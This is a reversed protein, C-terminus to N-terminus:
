FSCMEAGHLSIAHVIPNLGFVSHSSKTLCPYTGDSLVSVQFGGNLASFWISDGSWPQREAERREPLICTKAVGETFNCYVEVADSICGGNPDM